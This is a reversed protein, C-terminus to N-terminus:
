MSEVTKSRVLCSHLLFTGSGNELLSLLPLCFVSRQQAKLCFHPHVRAETFILLLSHFAAEGDWGSCRLYGLLLSILSQGMQERFFLAEAETISARWNPPCVLTAGDRRSIHPNLYSSIQGHHMLVQLAVVSGLRPPVGSCVVDPTCFGHWVMKQLYHRKWGNLKIDLYQFAHHSPSM